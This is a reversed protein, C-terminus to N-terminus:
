ETCRARVLCGENLGIYYHRPDLLVSSEGHVATKGKVADEITVDVHLVDVDCCAERIPGHVQLVVTLQADSQEEM